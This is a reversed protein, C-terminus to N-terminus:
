TNKLYKKAEWRSHKIGARYFRGALAGLTLEEGNYYCIQSDYKKVAKRNNEKGKESQNYKIKCKIRAEKHRATDLGKSRRDNYAPKLMEIFEQEVQKLYEPMVPTLIQFRFNEIGYKQFDQYLLSNPYRKQFSSRKHERWRREVDKSSGVYRENTVTNIIQYVASIKHM